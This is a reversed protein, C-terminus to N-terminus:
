VYTSKGDTLDRPIWRLAFESSTRLIGFMLIHQLIVCKSNGDYREPFLSNMRQFVSRNQCMITIERAYKVNSLYKMIYRVILVGHPENNQQKWCWKAFSM